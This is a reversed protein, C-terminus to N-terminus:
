GSMVGNMFPMSPKSPAAHSVITTFRGFPPAWSGGAGERGGVVPGYDNKGGGGQVDAFGEGHGKWIHCRLLLVGTDTGELCPELLLM